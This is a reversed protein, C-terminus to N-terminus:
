IYSFICILHVILLNLKNHGTFNSFLRVRLVLSHPLNHTIVINSGNKCLFCCQCFLIQRGLVYDTRCYLCFTFETKFSYGGGGWVCVCVCVSNSIFSASRVKYSPINEFCTVMYRLIQNNWCLLLCMSVTAGRICARDKLYYEAM